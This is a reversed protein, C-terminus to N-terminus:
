ISFIKGGPLVRNLPLPGWFTYIGAWSVALCQAFNPQGGNLSTPATVFGLHLLRQFTSPDLFRGKIFM